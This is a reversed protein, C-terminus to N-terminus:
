RLRVVKDDASRGEALAMIKSAVAEMIRKTEEAYGHRDYVSAIGGEKHNQIRNMADRGFALATITSGHTRRLDHPTAREVGLKACIARMAADLGHIGGRPGAFVFGSTVGDDTLDAIVAQAAKPLWVRNSEGNKTGPWGLAPLPEGPMEWWGDIIHERRMHSVEGPRQGTLLMMKLATGAVLGADDFASWFRPLESDSLVRERSRTANRDVGRCPNTAVVEQKVGWSFVASMAALVQNALVPAEIRSMMARVDARGISTAQLKGWPPLAHRRILKDAQAWSKNRRKAYHEVYREALEAFTGAGREARKEGAPDKGRAVALMAEAALTRADALGIAGANGLHLWRPRSHHSYICKWARAGTPQVRIALGRQLTDWVLFPQTKPKLKRVYLETLRRKLAARKPRTM